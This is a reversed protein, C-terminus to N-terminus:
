YNNIEWEPLEAEGPSMVWGTIPNGAAMLAQGFGAVNACLIADKVRTRFIATHKAKTRGMATPGKKYGRGAEATLKEVLGIMGPGLEGLHTVVGPVLVPMGIRKRGQVQRELLEILLAYRATKLKTAQVVAPSATRAMPNNLDVGSVAQEGLQLAKVFTKLPKIAAKATPHIGTFDCLITRGDAFNIELDLRVGKTKVEMTALAKKLRDLMPQVRPDQSPLAALAKLVTNIEETRVKSAATVTKPMLGRVEEESFEDNLLTRTSPEVIAEAGTERAFKATIHTYKNHTRYRAAFTSMCGIEHTGNCGMTCATGHRLACVEEVMGVNNRPPKIIETTNASEIPMTARGVRILRPLGLYYRMYFIFPMPLIRNLKEHLPAQICRSSQSRTLVLATQVKDVITNAPEPETDVDCDGMLADRRVLAVAQTLRAQMKTRPTTLLLGSNCSAEILTATNPPFGKMSHAIDETAEDNHLAYYTKYAEDVDDVIHEKLSQVIPDRLITCTTALFACPALVRQDMINCGGMRSSLGLIGHAREHRKKHMAPASLQMPTLITDLARELAKQVVRAVPLSYKTPTVGYYYDNLHRSAQGLLKMAAQPNAEGFKVIANIKTISKKAQQTAMEKV